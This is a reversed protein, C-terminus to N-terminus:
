EWLALKFTRKQSLTLSSQSQSRISLSRPSHFDPIPKYDEEEDESPPVLEPDYVPKSDEPYHPSWAPAPSSVPCQSPHPTPACDAMTGGTPLNQDIEMDSEDESSDSVVVLGLSNGQPVTISRLSSSRPEPDDQAPSYYPGPPTPPPSSLPMYEASEFSITLGLHQTGHQPRVFEPSITPLSETDTANVVPDWWQQTLSTSRRCPSSPPTPGLRTFTVQSDSVSRNMALSLGGARQFSPFAALVDFTSRDVPVPYPDDFDGSEGRNALRSLDHLSQAYSQEIHSFECDEMEAVLQSLAPDLNSIDEEDQLMSLLSEGDPLSHHTANPIAPISEQPASSHYIDQSSDKEMQFPNEIANAPFPPDSEM